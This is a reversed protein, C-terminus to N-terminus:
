LGPLGRKLKRKAADDGNNSLRERLADIQQKRQVPDDHLAQQEALRPDVVPLEM